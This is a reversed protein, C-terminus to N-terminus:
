GLRESLGVVRVAGRIGDRRRAECSGIPWGVGGGHSHAAACCLVSLASLSGDGTLMVHSCTRRAWGAPEFGPM